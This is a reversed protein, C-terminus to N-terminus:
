KSSEKMFENLDDICKLLNESIELYLLKEKRTKAPKMSYREAEKYWKQILKEM